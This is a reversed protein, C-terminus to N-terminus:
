GLVKAEVRNLRARTAPDLPRRRARDLERTLASESMLLAIAPVGGARAGLERLVARDDADLSLSSAVRAYAAERPDRRRRRGAFLMFSATLFAGAVAVRGAAGIALVRTPAPVEDKVIWVPEVPQALAHSAVLIAVAAVRM